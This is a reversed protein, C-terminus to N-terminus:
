GTVVIKDRRFSVLIKGAIPMGFQTAPEFRTFLIMNAIDNRLKSNLNNPISYDIVSGDRDLTVQVVVDDDSFGFPPLEAFSAQSQAFLGSLLVDNHTRPGLQLAPALMTFLFVASVLGGAFPIALPRMLNDFFLHLQAARFHAMATLTGRSLYRLRERSAMVRLQTLLRPPPAAPPLSRLSARMEGLERAYTSCDRCRALHENVRGLAARGLDPIAPLVKRVKDCNM